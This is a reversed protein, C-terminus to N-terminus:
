LLDAHPRASRDNYRVARRRDFRAAGPRPRRVDGARIPATRTLIHFFFRVTAAYEHEYSQEDGDSDEGARDGVDKLFLQHLARGIWHKDNAGGVRQERQATKREDEYARQREVRPEPRVDHDTGREGDGAVDQQDARERRGPRETRPGMLAYLDTMPRTSPMKRMPSTGVSMPVAPTRSM